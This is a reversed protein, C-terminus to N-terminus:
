VKIILKSAHAVLAQKTRQSKPLPKQEIMERKHECM